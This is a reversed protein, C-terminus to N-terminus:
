NHVYQGLGTSLRRVFAFRGGPLSGGRGRDKLIIIGEGEGRGAGLPGRVTSFFGCYKGPLPKTTPCPFTHRSRYFRTRSLGPKITAIILPAASFGLFFKGPHPNLAPTSIQLVFLFFPAETGRGTACGRGLSIIGLVGM